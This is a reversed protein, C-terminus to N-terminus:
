NPRRQPPLTPPYHRSAAPGIAPKNCHLIVPAPEPAFAELAHAMRRQIHRGGYTSQRGSVAGALDALCPPARTRGHRAQQNRELADAYNLLTFADQPAKAVIRQYWSLAQRQQNLVQHGAAFAPWYDANGSNSQYHKLAIALEATRQQDILLWLGSLGVTKSVPDMVM